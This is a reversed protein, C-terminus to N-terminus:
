KVIIDKYDHLLNIIDTYIMSYFDYYRKIENKNDPEDDELEALYEKDCRDIYKKTV